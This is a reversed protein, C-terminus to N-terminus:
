KETNLFLNNLLLLETKIEVRFHHDNQLKQLIALVLIVAIYNTTDRSGTFMHKSVLIVNGPSITVSIDKFQLKGMKMAAM